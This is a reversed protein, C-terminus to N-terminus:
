ITLYPDVDHYFPRGNTAPAVSYQELLGTETEDLRPKSLQISRAKHLALLPAIEAEFTAAPCPKIGNVWPTVTFVKEGLVSPVNGFSLFPIGDDALDRHASKSIDCVDEASCDNLREPDIALSYLRIVWKGNESRRIRAVQIPDRKAEPPMPRADAWMNSAEAISIAFNRNLLADPEIM